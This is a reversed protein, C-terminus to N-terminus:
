RGLNSNRFRDLLGYEDKYCDSAEIFWCKTYNNTDEYNGIWRKCGYRHICMNSSEIEADCYSYDIKLKKFPKM